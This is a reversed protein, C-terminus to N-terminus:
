TGTLIFPQLQVSNVGFGRALVPTFLTFSITSINHGGHHEQVSCATNRVGTPNQFTREMGQAMRYRSDPERTHSQSACKIM